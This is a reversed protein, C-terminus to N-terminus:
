PSRRVVCGHCVGVFVVRLIERPLCPGYRTQAAVFGDSRCLLQETETSPDQRVSVSMGQTTRSLRGACEVLKGFAFAALNGSECTHLLRDSLYAGVLVSGIPKKMTPTGLVGRLLPVVQRM